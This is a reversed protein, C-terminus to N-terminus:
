AEERCAIRAKVLLAYANCPTILNEGRAIAQLGM